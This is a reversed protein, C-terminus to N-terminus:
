RERENEKKYREKKREKNVIPLTNTTTTNVIFHVINPKVLNPRQSYFHFLL